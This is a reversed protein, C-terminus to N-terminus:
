TKLIRFFFNRSNPCVCLVAARDWHISGFILMEWCIRRIKSIILWRRDVNFYFCKINIRRSHGAVEVHWAPAQIKRHFSSNRLRRSSSASVSYQSSNANSYVTLWGHASYVAVTRQLRHITSNRELVGCELIRAIYYIFINICVSPWTFLNREIWIGMLPSSHRIPRGVCVSAM